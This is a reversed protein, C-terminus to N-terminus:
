QGAQLPKGDMTIKQDSWTMSAMKWKGKEKRYTEISTGTFEMKHPKKKGDMTVAKMVHGTTCTAANGKEKLSVIKSDAATMKQMMAFGQRMGAVMEDFTMSRGQESYKFDSTIGGKVAKVFGNIDKKMMVTHMTKNMAEIQSRLNDASAFVCLALGVLVFSIKRM